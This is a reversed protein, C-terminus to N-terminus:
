EETAWHRFCILIEELNGAGGAGHFVGDRVKCYYWDQEDREIEKLDLCKHELKTEVLNIEVYWGPNDVTEIKVGNSHEWDGNCNQKYWGQLWKLTEM